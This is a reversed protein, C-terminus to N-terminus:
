IVFTIPRCQELQPHRSSSYFCESFCICVRPFLCDSEPFPRLSIASKDNRSVKERGTSYSPSIAGSGVPCPRWKATDILLGASRTSYLGRVSRVRDGVQCTHPMCDHRHAIRRISNLDDCRNLPTPAPSRRLLNPDNLLREPRRFVSALPRFVSIPEALNWSSIEVYMKDTSSNFDSAERVTRKEPPELTISPEELIGSRCCYYSHQTRGM